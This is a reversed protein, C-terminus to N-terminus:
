RTRHDVRSMRPGRRELRVLPSLELLRVARYRQPRYPELAEAIEDDRHLRRGVLGVGVLHGLHYDGFPVADADGLARSGTEAATWVGVGPISRLARYVADLDDENEAAVRELQPGVRACGHATRYRQPDVGAEHWEWSPLAAWTEATPFVRMGEPAPGPAPEGHRMLLRRWSDRADQGVVRQEIIAPLLAELVRGTRPVRMGPFRRHADAVAPHAPVFGSSDDESGLARPLTSLMEDAGPGWAEAEVMRSDVQRVSVTAPGTDMRSTRWLASGVRKFAPDGGGRRLALWTRGVDLPATFTMTRHVSPRTTM